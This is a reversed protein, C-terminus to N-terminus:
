YWWSLSRLINRRTGAHACTHSHLSSTRARPHEHVDGLSNIYLVSAEGSTKRKFQDPSSRPARVCQVNERRSESICGHNLAVATLKKILLLVWHTFTGFLTAPGPCHEIFAYLRKREAMRKLPQSKIDHRKRNHLSSLGLSLNFLPRSAETSIVSRGTFGTQLFSHERGRFKPLIMPTSPTWPFSYILNSKLQAETCPCFKAFQHLALKFSMRSFSCLMM